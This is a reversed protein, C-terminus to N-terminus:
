ESKTKDFFLKSCYIGFSGSGATFWKDKHHIDLDQKLWEFLHNINYEKIRQLLLDKIVLSQFETYNKTTNDRTLM